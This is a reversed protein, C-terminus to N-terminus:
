DTLCGGWEERRYLWVQHHGQFTEIGVTFEGADGTKVLMLACKDRIAIAEGKNESVSIVEVQHWGNSM